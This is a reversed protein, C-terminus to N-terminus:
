TSARHLGYIFVQSHLSTHKHEDIAVIGAQLRFLKIDRMGGGAWQHGPSHTQSHTDTQTPPFPISILLWFSLHSLFWILSDTLPFCHSVFLYLSSFLGRNNHETTMIRWQQSCHFLAAAPLLFQGSLTSQYHLHWQKRVIILENNWLDALSM